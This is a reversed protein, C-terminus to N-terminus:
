SADWWALFSDRNLFPVLYQNFEAGHGDHKRAGLVQEALEWFSQRGFDAGADSQVFFDM